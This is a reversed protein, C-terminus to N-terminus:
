NKVDFKEVNYKFISDRIISYNDDLNKLYDYINIRSLMLTALEHIVGDKLRISKVIESSNAYLKQDKRTIQLYIGNMSRIRLGTKLDSQIFPLHNMHYKMRLTDNSQIGSADMAADKVAWLTIQQDKKLEDDLGNTKLMTYFKAYEPHTELYQVVTMDVEEETGSIGFYYDAWKDNCSAFVLVLCALLFYLKKM